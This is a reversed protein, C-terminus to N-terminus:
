VLAHPLRAKRRPSTGGVTIRKGRRMGLEPIQRARRRPPVPVDPIRIEARTGLRRTGSRCTQEAERAPPEAPPFPSQPPIRRPAPPPAPPTCFKKTAQPFQPSSVM